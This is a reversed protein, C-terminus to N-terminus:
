DNDMDEEKDKGMMADLFSRRKEGKVQYSREIKNRAIKDILTSQASGNERISESSKSDISYQYAIVLEKVQASLANAKNRSMFNYCQTALNQFQELELVFRALHPSAVILTKYYLSKPDIVLSKEFSGDEQPVQEIRQVSQVLVDVLDKHEPESQPIM